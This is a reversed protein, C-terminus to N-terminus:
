GRVAPEGRSPAVSIHAQPAALGQDGVVLQEDAPFPSGVGSFAPDPDPFTEVGEGRVCEAFARLQDLLSLADRVSGQAARAVANAAGATLTFGEVSAIHVLRRGILKEALDRFLTIEVYRRRTLKAGFRRGLGVVGRSHLRSSTVTGFFVVSRGIRAQRTSFVAKKEDCAPTRGM